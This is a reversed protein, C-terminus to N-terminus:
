GIFNAVKTRVNEYRATLDQSFEYLWRHINAYREELVASMAQVVALPKQASAATDLFVFPKGNMTKSLVPFDQRVNLPDYGSMNQFARETAM